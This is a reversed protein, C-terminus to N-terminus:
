VGPVFLGLALQWFQWGLSDLLAQVTPVIHPRWHTYVCLLALLQPAQPREQPVQPPVVQWCLSHTGVVSTEPTFGREM